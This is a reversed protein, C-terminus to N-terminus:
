IAVPPLPTEMAEVCKPCLVKGFKKKIASAYVEPKMVNGSKGIVPPITEGCVECLIPADPQNYTPYKTDDKGWYVNAAIGIAKCAVSLADTLAKKFAEDDTYIGKLEKSTFMAGGTGPIPDSWEGDKKIYLEIDVFAAIEGNAGEVTWKNTVKYKWGIGCIGFQETLTKLRWVPNVDTMGKLRGGTITKKATDPVDRVANWLELNSNM